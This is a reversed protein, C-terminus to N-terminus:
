AGVQTLVRNFSEAVDAETRAYRRAGDGMASVISNALKRLDAFEDALGQVAKAYATSLAEAEPFSGFGGSQAGSEAGMEPAVLDELTALLSHELAQLADFEAMFM